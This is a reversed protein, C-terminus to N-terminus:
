GENTMPIENRLKMRKWNCLCDENPVVWIILTAQQVENTRYIAQNYEYMCIYMYMHHIM